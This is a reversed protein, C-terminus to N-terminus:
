SLPVHLVFKFLVIFTARMALEVSNFVGAIAIDSGIQFDLMANASVM